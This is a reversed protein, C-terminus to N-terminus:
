FLIIYKQVENWTEVVNKILTLNKDWQDLQEELIGKFPNQFLRQNILIHNDLMQIDEDPMKMIFTDEYPTIQLKSNDWYREILNIDLEITYEKSATEAIKKLVDAHKNIGM